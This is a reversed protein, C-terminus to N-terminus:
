GYFEAAALNADLIAGDVPDILLQVARNKEFMQRYLADEMGAVERSARTKRRRPPIGTPKGLQSSM